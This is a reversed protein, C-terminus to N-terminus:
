DRKVRGKRQPKYRAEVEDQLSSLYEDWPGYSRTKYVIVSVEKATYKKENKVDWIAYYAVRPISVGKDICMDDLECWAHVHHLRDLPNTVEGHVLLLNPDLYAQAYYAEEFCKGLLKNKAM